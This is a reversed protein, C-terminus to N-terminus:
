DESSIIVVPIGTKRARSICDWTGRSLPTVFAYCIDAGLDVMRQNRDPGLCRDGVFEAPHSEVIYGLDYAIDEAIIDAGGLHCAGHVLVVDKYDLGYQKLVNYIADRDTWRRDGTILIRM